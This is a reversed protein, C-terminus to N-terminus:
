WSKRPWMDHTELVDFKPHREGAPRAVRRASRRARFRAMIGAASNIALRPPIIDPRGFHESPWGRGVLAPRHRHRDCWAWGSCGRDVRAKASSRLLGQAAAAAARDIAELVPIM